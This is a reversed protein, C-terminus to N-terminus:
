SVTIAKMKLSIKGTSWPIYENFLKFFVIKALIIIIVDFIIVELANIINVKMGFVDVLHLTFQKIIMEVGMLILTSKGIEVVLKSKCLAHAAAINAIFIILVIVLQFTYSLFKNTMVELGFIQYFNVGYYFCLYSIFITFLSSTFITIKFKEKFLSYDFNRIWKYLIDGLAFFFMYDLVTNVNFFLNESFPKMVNSVYLLVLSIVLLISKIKILRDLLYYIIQVCFISTLFWIQSAVFKTSRVGELLMIVQEWMEQATFNKILSFFIINFLGFFMFPILVKIIRDLLLEKFSKERLKFYFLGSLFFFLQLHYLYAFIELRGDPTHFHGCYIAFIALAKCADVWDLRSRQEM